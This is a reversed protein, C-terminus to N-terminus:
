WPNGILIFASWYYPHSLNSNELNALEPPLAIPGSPTVLQGNGLRVKGNIMALQAQRLAEAKIPAQKLQEYFTTMLGLTGEDSVYWLSGLASKVGAQIALGTFGLEAQNDGLASRCASLVLLEIPPDNLKLERLQDLQLKENGFQIYSDSAKGPKFEGHTALHLIGFPQSARATKLNEITFTENLYSKGSWINQSITLLEFPVAPLPNEDTFQSAGMALIQLNKLPVYRTDTLSFSPMLGVSYKEIIFGNGDHLVAIPISRLGSDM